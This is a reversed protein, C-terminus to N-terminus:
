PKRLRFANAFDRVSQSPKSHVINTVEILHQSYAVALQAVAASLAESQPEYRYTEGDKAVLGRRHLQALVHAAVPTSVYLRQGAEDATWSRSANDRLLLIAELEPISDIRTAILERVANPVEEDAV